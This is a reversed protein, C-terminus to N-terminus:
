HSHPQLALSSVLDDLWAYILALQREGGRENWYVGLGASTSEQGTIHEPLNELQTKTNPRDISQASSASIGSAKLTFITASIKRLLVWTALKASPTFSPWPLLYFM